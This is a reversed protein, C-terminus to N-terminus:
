LQGAGTKKITQMLEKELLTYDIQSKRNENLRENRVELMIEKAREKTKGVHAERALVTLIKNNYELLGNNIVIYAENADKRLYLYGEKIFCITPVFNDLIGFEGTKKSYVTVYDVDEKYSINKAFVLGSHTKVIVKM